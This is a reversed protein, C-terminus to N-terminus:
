EPTLYGCTDTGVHLPTLKALLEQANNNEVIRQLFGDMHVEMLPLAAAVCLARATCTRQVHQPPEGHQTQHLRWAALRLPHHFFFCPRLHGSWMLSIYFRM